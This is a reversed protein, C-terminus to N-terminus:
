ERFTRTTIRRLEGQEDIRYPEGYDNYNGWGTHYAFSTTWSQSGRALTRRQLLANYVAGDSSLGNEGPVYNGSVPESRIWNLTERELVTGAQESTRETM